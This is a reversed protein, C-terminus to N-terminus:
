EFLSLGFSLPSNKIGQRFDSEHNALKTVTRELNSEVRDEVGDPRIEDYVRKRLSGINRTLLILDHLLKVTKLSMPSGRLTGDVIQNDISQLRQNILDDMHNMFHALDSGVYLSNVLELRRKRKSEYDLHEFANTHAFGGFPLIYINDEAYKGLKRSTHRDVYASDYSQHSYRFMQLIDKPQINQADYAYVVPYTPIESAKSIGNPTSKSVNYIQSLIDQRLLDILTPSTRTIDESLSDNNKVEMDWTWNGTSLISRDTEATVTVDVGTDDLLNQLVEKPHEYEPDPLHRWGSFQDLLEAKTEIADVSGIEAEPVRIDGVLGILDNMEKENLGEQSRFYLRVRISIIGQPYILIWKKFKSDELVIDTDSNEFIINNDRVEIDPHYTISDVGVNPKAYLVPYDFHCNNNVNKEVTDFWYRWSSNVEGAFPGFEFEIEPLFPYPSWPGLDRNGAAVSRSHEGSLLDDTFSRFKHPLNEPEFIVEPVSILHSQTITGESIEM